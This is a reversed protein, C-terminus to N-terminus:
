YIVAGVKSAQFLVLNRLEIDRSKLLKQIIWGFSAKMVKKKDILVLAGGWVPSWRTNAGTSESCNECGANGLSAIM